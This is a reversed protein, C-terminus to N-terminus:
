DGYSLIKKLDSQVYEMVIFIKDDIIKADYLKPTFISDHRTLEYMIGLERIVHTLSYETKNIGKILKIAVTEGTEYNNAKVVQGYSGKGIIALLQYENM